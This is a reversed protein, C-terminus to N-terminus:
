WDVVTWSLYMAPEVLNPGKPSVPFGQPMVGGSVRRGLDPCLAARWPVTGTKWGPPPPTRETVAETAAEILYRPGIRYGAGAAPVFLVLGGVWRSRFPPSGASRIRPM